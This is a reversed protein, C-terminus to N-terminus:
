HSLFLPGERAPAPEPRFRQELLRPLGTGADFIFLAEPMNLLACTTERRTTPIWGGTGLLTFKVSM